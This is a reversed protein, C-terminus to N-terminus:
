YFKPHPAKKHVVVNHELNVNRGLAKLQKEEQSTDTTSTAIPESLYLMKQFERNYLFDDLNVRTKVELIEPNRGAGTVTIYSDFFSAFYAFVSFAGIGILFPRANKFNRFTISGHTNGPGQYRGLQEITIRDPDIVKVKKVYFPNM